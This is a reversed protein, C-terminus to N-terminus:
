LHRCCCCSNWSSFTRYRLKYRWLFNFKVSIDNTDYIQTTSYTRIENRRM